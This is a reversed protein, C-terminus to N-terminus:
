KGLQAALAALFAAADEEALDPGLAAAIASAMAPPDLGALAGLSVQLARVRQNTDEVLDAPPWFPNKPNANPNAILGDQKWVAAAIKAIEADTIPMGAEQFFNDNLLSEDILTGGTGPAKSTWQTGDMGTCIHKGAGYHASWLRVDDRTVGAARLVRLVAPMVSISAYVVPRHVGRALQRKVWAPLQEPTMDGTECDACEADASAFVAIELIRTGPFRARMATLNAFRGDAYGAYADAGPPLNGPTISDLMRLTM